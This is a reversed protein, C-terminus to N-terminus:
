NSGYLSVNAAFLSAARTDGVLLFFLRKSEHVRQPEEPSVSSVFFLTLFNRPFGRKGALALSSFVEM